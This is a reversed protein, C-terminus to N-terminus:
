IQSKVKYEATLVESYNISPEVEAKVPQKNIQRFLPKMLFKFIYFPILLVWFFSAVILITLALFRDEVSPNSQRRFFTFWNISFYCTGALFLCISLAAIINMCFYMTKPEYLLGLYNM